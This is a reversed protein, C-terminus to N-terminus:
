DTDSVNQETNSSIMQEMRDLMDEASPTQLLSAPPSPCVSTATCGNLMVCGIVLITWHEWIRM